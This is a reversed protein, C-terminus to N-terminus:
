PNPRQKVSGEFGPDAFAENAPAHEAVWHRLVPDLATGWFRVRRGRTGIRNLARSPAHAEGTIVGQGPIVIDQEFM